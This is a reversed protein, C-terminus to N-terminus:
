HMLLEDLFAEFRPAILKHGTEDPHTGGGDDKSYAAARFAADWPRLNSCHYLDLCPIGWNKCIQVIAESYQAMWNTNDAPNYGQWPTPTIIGLNCTTIRDFIRSITTNICGCLTDTGTDSPTGITYSHDNGSGFITVVDSDLPITDVRDMFGSVGAYSQKYGTGGAGLNVVNIGTKDAIYDHYHMTTRINNATLSDGMCAWKIGTWKKGYTDQATYLVAGDAGSVSAIRIKSAGYPTYILMNERSVITWSTASEYALVNGDADYIAYIYHGASRASGTLYYFTFPTVSIEDTVYWDSYTTAIDKVGTSDIFKYQIKTTEVEDDIAYFNTALETFDPILNYYLYSYVGNIASAISADTTTVKSLELWEYGTRVWIRRAYADVVFGVRTVSSESELIIAYGNHTAVFDSPLNAPKKNEASSIGYSGMPLAFVDDQATLYARLGVYDSALRENLEDVEETLETYDAPISEIVQQVIEEAQEQFDEAAKEVAKDFINIETGSEIAGIGRFPRVLLIADFSTVIEGDASIRVQMPNEGIEALSQATLECTIENGSITASNYIAEGSPKQIYYTAAAGAPITFDALKFCISRGTDGQVAQILQPSVQSTLNITIHTTIM